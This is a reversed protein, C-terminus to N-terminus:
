KGTCERYLLALQRAYNGLDFREAFSSRACESLRARFEPDAIVRVLADALASSDGVPVFLGSEGETIVEPLAGVPTTIVALGYSLGELVSLPLGEGHSPLALVDAHFCLSEVTERDVWGPFEIRDALGLAAAKRRYLEVDGGGALVATWALSQVRESALAELLEPIGKRTGLNGLFLLRCPGVPKERRTDIPPPVTNYMVVVRDAEAGIDDVVFDRWFEGLVIVRTASRFTARILAQLPRPMAHFFLDYRSGHLHLIVPVRLIAALLIIISKRVTSGRAAVNVHLLSVRGLMSEMLIIILTKAFYFPAWVLHGPGYDDIIRFEPADRQTSWIGVFYGVMRGMGGGHELGGPCVLLVKKHM